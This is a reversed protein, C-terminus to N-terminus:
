KDISKVYLFLKQNEHSYDNAPIMEMMVQKYIDGYRRRYFINLSTKDQRFYDKIYDMNTQALYQELDEPHVQGSTGFKELWVSIRSDFGKEKTQEENDMNVIQYSDEELDIKLIKTYLGCLAAHAAAQGKRDIGKKSYYKTKSEYMRNDAIQAMELVTEKPFERKTVYGCSVSVSDVVDGHWLATTEEFDAQIRELKEEDAFIIAVFEDGGTRYIKGYNGLCRKMCEAAGRLLEDGAAHGLSDNVVKLGNVDMSVYTFGPEPPCDPYLAVDDEYARRNYFGTLEDTNSQFILTEEKRKEEDIVQTTCLVKIPTGNDDAEITIFSLRIWGVNRGLLEASLFKKHQMREALTSLDSFEFGKELYEDSMTAIMVDHMMKAADIRHNLETVEKVQNRASYEVVSNDTLDILHMSYYIDSMSILLEVQEDRESRFKKISKQSQKINEAFVLGFFALCIFLVAGVSWTTAQNSTQMIKKLSTSPVLQFVRWGTASVQTVAGISAGDKGGLDFASGDATNLADFFVQKYEEYVGVNNWDMTTGVEFDETSAIVQNEGDVLMGIVKQGSFSSMFLERINTNGGLTGTLVGVIRKEYYLPTYFNLLPEKSYKPHFNVWIGTKGAIGQIYYERGSADFPAGADTYNMGDARIYELSSFPTNGILDKLIESPNELIDGTMTSAVAVSTVQISNLAYGISANIMDSVDSTSQCIASGTQSVVQGDQVRTYRVMVVVILFLAIAFYIIIKGNVKKKERVM